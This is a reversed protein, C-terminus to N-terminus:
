AFTGKRLVLIGALELVGIAQVVPRRLLSDRHSQIELHNYEQPKDIRITPSSYQDSPLRDEITADQTIYYEIDALVIPCTTWLSICLCPWGIGHM